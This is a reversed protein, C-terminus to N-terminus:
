SIGFLAPKMFTAAPKALHRAATGIEPSDNRSAPSRADCALTQQSDTPLTTHRQVSLLAALLARIRQIDRLLEDRKVTPLKHIASEMEAAMEDLDRFTLIKAVNEWVCIELFRICEM